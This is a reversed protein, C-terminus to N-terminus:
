PMLFPVFNRIIVWLIFLGTCIKWFLVSKPLFQKKTVAQIYSLILIICIIIVLPNMRLSEIFNGQLLAIASRTGGCFPCYLNTIAHFPCPIFIVSKQLFVAFEKHLFIVPIGVLPPLFYWHQRIYKM